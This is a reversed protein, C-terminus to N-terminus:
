GGIIWRLLSSLTRPLVFGDFNGKFQWQRCKLVDERIIKAAEFITTFDDRKNRLDDIAKEQQSVSCIIESDNRAPPRVFQAEPLNELILQKLYRKYNVVECDNGMLNNYTTNLNKMHLVVNSEHHLQFKVTNIIEIDALVRDINEIETTADDIQSVERQVGVWCKLHYQVDNAVADEANPIENLRLLFSKKPLLKAVELMRKGIVMKQVRHLTGVEKGTQCIICEEKRFPETSSRLLKRDVEVEFEPVMTDDETPLTNELGDNEGRKEYRKKAREKETKNTIRKYCEKHYVKKSDFLHQAGFSSLRSNHEMM